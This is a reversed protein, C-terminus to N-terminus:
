KLPREGQDLARLAGMIISRAIATAMGVDREVFARMLLNHDNMSREMRGPLSLSVRRLRLVQAGLKNLTHGLTEDRSIIAATRHFWVNAWFYRKLDGDRNAIAMENSLHTLESLSHEDIKMCVSEAVLHYLTARLRYVERIMKLKPVLVYASRNNPASVLGARELTLLAERIPTRSSSFRKALATTSLRGGGSLDGNVIDLALTIAIKNGLVDKNAEVDLVAAVIVVPDATWAGKIKCVTNLLKNTPM